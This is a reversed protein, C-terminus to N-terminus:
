DESSGAGSESGPHSILQMKKAPMYHPDYELAKNFAEKASLTPKIIVNELNYYDGNMSILKGKKSHLNYNVFEVKIGQNYLQFKEHIFGEKDSDIKIKQFSQNNNLSLQDEFVKESDSSKYNSKNSFVILNPQGSESLVKKSVRKDKVQASISSFLLFVIFCIIKPQKKKM